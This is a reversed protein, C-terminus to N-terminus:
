SKSLPILHQFVLNQNCVKPLFATQTRYFDKLKDFQAIRTSACSVTRYRNEICISTSGSHGTPHVRQESQLSCKLVSHEIRTQM